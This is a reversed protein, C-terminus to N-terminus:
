LPVAIVLAEDRFTGASLTEFSEIKAHESVTKGFDDVYTVSGFDISTTMKLLPKVVLNVFSGVVGRHEFSQTFYFRGTRPVMFDKCRKLAASKNPIIMFSGSFYVADFKGDADSPAYDHISAYVLSVRDALGAVRVNEKAAIVYHEDYDVGIVSINRQILIDKNAILATATGIGVDLVKANAPLKCLFSRYWRATMAVILHDYLDSRLQGFFSAVSGSKQSVDSSPDTVQVRILDDDDDDIKKTSSSVAAAAAAAVPVERSQQQPQQQVAVTTPTPRPSTDEQATQAVCVAEKQPSPQQQQQACPASAKVPSPQKEISAQQEVEEDQKNDREGGENNNNNNNAAIVIPPQEAVSTLAAAPPSAVAAAAAADAVNISRDVEPSAIPAADEENQKGAPGARRRKSGGTPM